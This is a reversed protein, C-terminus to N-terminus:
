AVGEDGIDLINLDGILDRLKAKARFVEVRVAGVKKNQMIAIEKYEMGQVYKLDIVDRQSPTLKLTAIRLREIDENIEAQRDASVFPSTDVIQDHIQTSNKNVLGEGKRKAKDATANRAIGIVYAEFPFGRDEYKEISRILRFAVNSAVDEADHYNGLKKLAYRFVKPEHHQWLLGLSEDCGEKSKQILENEKQRSLNGDSIEPHIRAPPTSDLFVSGSAREKNM